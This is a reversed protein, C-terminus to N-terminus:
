QKVQITLRNGPRTVTMKPITFLGLEDVTTEGSQLVKGEALSGNTWSVMTGAPPRFKQRRRPTVDVTCHDQPAKDNLHLVMEWKGAEDASVPDWYLFLNSQGHAEGDDPNGNGPNGDLSCNTFAPLSRDVRVDVGLERENPSPGPLLARQGHGGQGWVFVHPQRSEQLAKWFDRAQAWGIAGDNKGNALCLLPADERVRSRVFATDDFYEFATTKGDQFPLKWDLAGYVREYSGKFQPSRAPTHVGVWSVCWAVQSARRLALSPSGSGGMSMGATFVRTRDIKWRSEAWDLFAMVRTQTTDRVVGEKWAKWTGNAEHYGTWWDYPIQNTSILIAGQAADYWWGYGSEFSGGWCHLHLGVPAPEIKKPPIAVLYDFPRSPLNSTAGAEWRVFYYLTPGDVYSFSPPTVVRQLVPEGPGVTEEIPDEASNAVTFLSLDEEGNVAASVAYYAKGATKPNHVYIGTGPAVPSKGEEVVYRPVVADDKPSVGQFDPDWATRPRVEDVLEARGVTAFTFPVESRYIRYRVPTDTPLLRWAGYTLSESPPPDVETWTLITQGARHRATLNTVRPIKNRARASSTVDLRSQIPRYGPFEVMSFRVEGKELASRVAETVDFSQFRPGLLPLPQESGAVTVKVGGKRTGFAQADDRGPRFVARYITVGKPLDSLDVDVRERGQLAGPFTSGERESFSLTSANQSLVVATLFLLIV